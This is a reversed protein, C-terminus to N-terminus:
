AKWFKTGFGESLAIDIKAYQMIKYPDTSLGNICLCVPLIVNWSLECHIWNYRPLLVVPQGKTDSSLKLSVHQSKKQTKHPFFLFCYSLFYKEREWIM